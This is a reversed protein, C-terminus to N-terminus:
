VSFATIGLTCMWFITVNSKWKNAHILYRIHECICYCFNNIFIKLICINVFKNKSCFEFLIMRTIIIIIVKTISVIAQEIDVTGGNHGIQVSVCIYLSELFPSGMCARPAYGVCSVERMFVFCLSIILCLLFYLLIRLLCDPLFFRTYSSSLITSGIWIVLRDLLM